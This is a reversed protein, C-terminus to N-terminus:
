ILSFAPETILGIQSDSLALDQKLAEVLIFPLRADISAVVQCLMLAAVVYWAHANSASGVAANASRKRNM